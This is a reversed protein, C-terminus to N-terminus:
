SGWAARDCFLVQDATAVRGAPISRDGSRLRDLAANKEEGTVLWVVGRARDIPPYTLTMRRTGRYPETLAVDRDAVSLVPDDPVLSATHGDDGLGLHVLDLRDPLAAAYRACGAALDPHEVPMSAVRGRGSPPLAEVLGTLNRQRDGAQAIREDVQFVTIRQWPMAHEALAALMLWPSRGGSVALSFAGREAFAASARHAVHAAAARSAEAATSQVHVQLRPESM